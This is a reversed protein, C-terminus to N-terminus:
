VVVSERMVQEARRGADGAHIGGTRGGIIGEVDVNDGRMRWPSTDTLGALGTVRSLGFAAASHGLTVSTARM